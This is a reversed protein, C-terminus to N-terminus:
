IKVINNKDDVAFVDSALVTTEDRISDEPSVEEASLPTGEEGEAQERAIRDEYREPGLDKRPDYEETDLRPPTDREAIIDAAKSRATVREDNEAIDVLQDRTLNDWDLEDFNVDQLASAM